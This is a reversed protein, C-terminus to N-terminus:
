FFTLGMFLFWSMSLLTLNWVSLTQPPSLHADVYLFAISIESSSHLLLLGSHSPKSYLANFNYHFGSPHNVEKIM